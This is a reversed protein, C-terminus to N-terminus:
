DRRRTNGLILLLRFVQSLSVALAAVYTLAAAKLVKEAADQEEYNLIGCSRICEMARSSANYETPLTILQFLATFSFLGIGIYGIIVFASALASLLVGLLFIWIGLQSGINTIPIIAQRIKIPAYGEAHQMAHGAEHCAVGIAAASTSDHVSDSLRIVNERPDYHDTLKGHVREIRVDYLGKSDLVSRAADAATIHRTNFFRSYREFTSNVRMSAIVSFLLAPLIIIYTPDFYFM